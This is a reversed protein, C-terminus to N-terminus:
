QGLSFRATSNSPAVCKVSLLRDYSRSRLSKKSRKPILTILNSFSNTKLSSSRTKSLILDLNPQRSLVVGGASAAPVGGEYPPSDINDPRGRVVPHPRNAEPLPM